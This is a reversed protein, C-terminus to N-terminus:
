GSAPGASRRRSWWSWSLTILAWFGAFLGAFVVAVGLSDGLLLRGLLMVLGVGLAEGLVSFAQPRSAPM